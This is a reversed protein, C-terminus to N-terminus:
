FILIYILTVSLKQYNDFPTHTADVETAFDFFQVTGDVFNFSWKPNCENKTM